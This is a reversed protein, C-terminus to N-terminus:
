SCSLMQKGDSERAASFSEFSFVSLTRHVRLLVIRTSQARGVCQFM